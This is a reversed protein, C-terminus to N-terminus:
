DPADLHLTESTGDNLNFTVLFLPNNNFTVSTIKGNTAKWIIEFSNKILEHKNDVIEIMARQNFKEERTINKFKLDLIKRKDENMEKLLSNSLFRNEVE